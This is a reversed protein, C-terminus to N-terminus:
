KLDLVIARHDSIGNPPLIECSEVKDLLKNSILFYDLRWGTSAINRERAAYPTWSIGRCGPHFKKWADTYGNELIANFLAREEDTNGASRFGATEAPLDYLTAAVNLDGCVIVPKSGDLYRVYRILDLLWAQKEDLRELNAGSAPAYVNVIFLHNTELTVARGEGSRAPVGIGGILRVPRAKAFLGVGAYGPRYSQYYYEDYGPVFYLTLDKGTRIEQVCFVNAKSERIYDKLGHEWAAQIGNINLSIIRM